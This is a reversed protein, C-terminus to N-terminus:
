TRRIKLVIEDETQSLIKVPWPDSTASGRVGPPSYYVVGHQDVWVGTTEADPGDNGVLIWAGHEDEISALITLNVDVESPLGFGAGWPGVLLCRAQAESIKIPRDYDIRENM